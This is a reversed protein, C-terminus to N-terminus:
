RQKIRKRDLKILKILGSDGLAPQTKLWKIPHDQKQIAYVIGHKDLVGILADNPANNMLIAMDKTRDLMDDVGTHNRSARVFKLDHLKRLQRAALPHTLVVSGAPIARMLEQDRQLQTPLRARFVQMRRFPEFSLKIAAVSEANAGGSGLLAAFVAVVVPILGIAYRAARGAVALAPLLGAGLLAIYQVNVVDVLRELMWASGLSKIVFGAFAPVILLMLCTSFSAAIGTAEVFRKRAVLAVLAAAALLQETWGGLVRKPAIHYRGARDPKLARTWRGPKSGRSIPPGGQYDFNAQAPQHAARAVYLSPGPLALLVAAFLGLRITSGISGRRALVRHLALATITAAGLVALYGAYLGHVFGLLLAAGGILLAHYRTRDTSFLGICGSLGIPVLWLPALQNPYLQWDMRLTFGLQYLCVAWQALPSGGIRLCLTAAASSVLLKAWPLTALWFAIPDLLTLKSGAAVFAHM